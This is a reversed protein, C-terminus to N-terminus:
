GHFRRMLEKGGAGARGHKGQSGERRLGALDGAAHDAAVCRAAFLFAAGHDPCHQAAEGAVAERLVV